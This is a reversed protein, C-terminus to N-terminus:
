ALLEQVRQVFEEPGDEKPIVDDPCSNRPVYVMPGTLFAVLQDPHKQKIAECFEMAEKVQRRLDVVILSYKGPQWAARAEDLTAATEVAHGQRELIHLRLQRITPEDDVLLIKKTAQGNGGTM